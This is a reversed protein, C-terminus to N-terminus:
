SQKELKSKIHKVALIYISEGMEIYDQNGLSRFNIPLLQLKEIFMVIDDEDTELSERLREIETDKEALAIDNLSQCKQWSEMAISKDCLLVFKAYRAFAEFESRIQEETKM